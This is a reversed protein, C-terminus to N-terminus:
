NRLQVWIGMERLLRLAQEREAASGPRSLDMVARLAEDSLGAQKLAVIDAATVLRLPHLEKGYVVPERNKLFSGEAILVQLTKEGVGASKLAVIEDVTFAATEVSKERLMLELTDDGVGAKKLRAVAGAEFAPSDGAPLVALLVALTLRLALRKV